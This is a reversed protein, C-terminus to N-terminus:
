FILSQTFEPHQNHNPYNRCGEEEPYAPFLGTKYISFQVNENLM